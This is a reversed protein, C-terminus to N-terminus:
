NITASFATTTMKAGSGTFPETGAQITNVYLATSLGYNTALHTLFLKMDGSWSTVPSSSAVFSFVRMSGNYGDFLKWSKEGITVTAVQSGIPGAGGYAALWVMIEYASTSSGSTTDLFIDYAVNAVINSASYSYTWSSPISSIASLKKPTFRLATNAFSKVNYSGGAWSWSTHWSISTGSTSDLGTCQSGSTAASSGWLNNYLIYNTTTATDWQGCFDAACVITACSALLSTTFISLKM